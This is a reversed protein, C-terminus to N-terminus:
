ELYSPLNLVFSQNKLDELIKYPGVYRLILKWALGKLFMINKTSVYILEDKVFLTIQWKKNTTEIEKVRTAPISDCAAMLALKQQLVFVCVGPYETQKASDWIMSRLMQGTNLFFPAYGTAM